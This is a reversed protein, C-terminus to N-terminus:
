LLLRFAAVAGWLVACAILLAAIFEGNSIPREESEDMDAHPINNQLLEFFFKETKM